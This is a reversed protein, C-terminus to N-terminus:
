ARGTAGAARGDAEAARRVAERRDRWVDLERFDPPQAQDAGLAAGARIVRRGAMPRAAWETSTRAPHVVLDAPAGPRLIGDWAQGLIAAPLRTVADAWTLAPDDLQGVAAALSLSHLPDLDGAPHFPDRHNDAGFAVPIGRQRAEHIPLVGRERPTAWPPEQRSDQLHLNTAPLSVFRVGAEASEDLLRNREAEPLRQLVCLHGCTTRAGLGSARAAALLPGLNAVAPELHEDVHFDIALGHRGAAEFARPILAPVHPAPYVFVGLVGGSGAIRRAIAEAVAPQEFADITVLSSLVLEIRGRWAERLSEFVSWSALPEALGGPGRARPAREPLPVPWDVYTNLARVGRAFAGRLAFDARAQLEDETWQVYDARTTSIADFLRRALPLGMALLDGKDLHAHPEVFASWVLADDLDLVAWGAAAADAPVEEQLGAIRGAEIAIAVRHGGAGARRAPPLRRADQPDLLSSPVTAGRLWYRAPLPTDGQLVAPRM